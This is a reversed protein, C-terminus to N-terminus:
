TAPQENPPDWEGPGDERKLENKSDYGMRAGALVPVDERLECWIGDIRVKQGKVAVYPLTYKKSKPPQRGIPWEAPQVKLQPEREM